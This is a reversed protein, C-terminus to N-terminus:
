SVLVIENYKFITYFNKDNFYNRIYEEPRDSAVLMFDGGWAGLSKLSGEFDDFYLSKVPEKRLIWGIYEEHLEILWQFTELNQVNEMASTLESIAQLDNSTVMKLDLGNISKQSNQKRNLYVFYLQQDFLPSFNAKRYIPGSERIEYIIPSSSRACAIDYGSGNFALKNLEFPDCDAWAAINSILTSSSGLGWEPLFDMSSSVQYEKPLDLFNPQLSKAGALINCLTASIDPSSTETVRFDNLLITATFWLNDNISSKWRIMSEGEKEKVTLSQGYKLPLALAMAGKLVLYEGSVLLKAHSEFRRIDAFNM